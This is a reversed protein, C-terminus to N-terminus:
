CSGTSVRACNTSSRYSATARPCRSPAAPASTTRSTSSSFRMARGRGFQMPCRPVGVIACQRRFSTIVSSARDLGDHRGITPAAVVRHQITPDLRCLAAPQISASRRAHQMEVNVRMADQDVTGHRAEDAVGERAERGVAEIGFQGPAHRVLLRREFQVRGVLGAIRRGFHIPQRGRQVVHRGASGRRWRGCTGFVLVVFDGLREITGGEGEYAARLVARLRETYDIVLNAFLDEKGEFYLYFTGVSLGARSAVEDVRLEPMGHDHIIQSAAEMLRRRVEENPTRLRKRPRRPRRLPRPEIESMRPESFARELNTFLIMNVM